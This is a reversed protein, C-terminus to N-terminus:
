RRVNAYSATDVDISFTSLPNGKVDLFPNEEQADYAETNFDKDVSARRVGESKESEDVVKAQAMMQQMQARMPQLEESEKAAQNGSSSRAKGAIMPASTPKAASQFDAIEAPQSADQQKVGATDVRKEALALQASAAPANPALRMDRADIENSSSPAQQSALAPAPTAGITLQFADLSKKNETSAVTAVKSGKEHRLGLIETWPLFAGALLCAALATLATVFSVKRIKSPAGPAIDKRAGNESATTSGGKGTVAENIGLIAERQEDTLAPASTTHLKESLLAAMQRTETVFQRGEASTALWAEVEARGAADLADFEDLAYATLKPDDLNMM